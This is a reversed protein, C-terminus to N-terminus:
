TAASCNASRATGPPTTRPSAAGTRCRSSRPAAAPAATATSARLGFLGPMRRFRRTHKGSGLKGDPDRVAWLRDGTLGRPGADAAAVVEGLMSKVPFRRIEVVQM